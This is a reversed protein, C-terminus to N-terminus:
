HKESKPNELAKHIRLSQHFAKKFTEIESSTPISRLIMRRLTYFVNHKNLDIQFGSSTLWDMFLKDPFLNTHKTNEMRGRKYSNKNNFNISEISEACIYHALLVAQALNLSKFSSQHTPLDCAMHCCDVDKTLLGRDESGFVLYIPKSYHEDLKASQRIAEPLGYTKRKKGSRRTLGLRIGYPHHKFFESWNPFSEHNNLIERPEPPWRIPIKM